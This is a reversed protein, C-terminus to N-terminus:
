GTSTGKCFKAKANYLDRPTARLEPNSKKLAKLVKMPKFGAYSMTRIIEIEERSFHRSYRHKSMDRIAEHNHEGHTIALVWRENKKRGEVEFPCNTLHSPQKRRRKFEKPERKRRHTCGRDCGLIILNEKVSRRITVVYGQSIGFQRVYLILEERDQFNGCPPPLMLKEWDDNTQSRNEM